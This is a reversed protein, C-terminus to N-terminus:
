QKPFKWGPKAPQSVQGSINGDLLAIESEVKRESGANEDANHEGQHAPDQSTSVGREHRRIQQREIVPRRRQVKAPGLHANSSFRLIPRPGAAAPRLRTEGPRKCQYV